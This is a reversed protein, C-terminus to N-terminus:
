QSFFLGQREFGDYKQWQSVAVHIIGNCGLGAMDIDNYTLEYISWAEDCVHM